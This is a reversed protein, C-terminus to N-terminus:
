IRLSGSKIEMSDMNEYLDSVTWKFNNRGGEGEGVAGTRMLDSM